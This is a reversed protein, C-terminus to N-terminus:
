EGQELAARGANRYRGSKRPLGSPRSLHRWTEGRLIRQITSRQVNMQSAISSTLEGLAARNIISMADSESLKHGSSAEGFPARGSRFHDQASTIGVARGKRVMDKMNATAHGLFLHSPNVCAPTDCHHCVCLGSPIEGCFLTYSVRHAKWVKGRFFMGGYGKANRSGSWLWCEDAFSVKSMLRSADPSANVFIKQAKTLKM